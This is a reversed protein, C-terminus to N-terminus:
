YSVGSFSPWCSGKKGLDSGFLDLLSLFASGFVFSINYNLMNKVFWVLFFSGWM